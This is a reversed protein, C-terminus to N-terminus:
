LILLVLEADFGHVLNSVSIGGLGDVGLDLVIFTRFVCESVSLINVNFVKQIKDPQDPDALSESILLKSQHLCCDFLLFNVFTQKDM